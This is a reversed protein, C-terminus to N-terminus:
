KGTSADRSGDAYVVLGFVAPHKKVGYVMASIYSSRRRQSLLSALKASMPLSPLSAPTGPLALLMPLAPLARLSAPLMPLVPLARLTALTALTALISSAVFFRWAARSSNIRAM